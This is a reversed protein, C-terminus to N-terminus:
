RLPGDDTTRSSWASSVFGSPAAVMDVAVIKGSTDRRAPLALLAEFDESRSAALFANVVEQRAHSRQWFCYRCVDERRWERSGLSEFFM